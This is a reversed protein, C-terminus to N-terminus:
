KALKSKKIENFVDVAIAEVQKNTMASFVGQWASSSTNATRTGLVEGTKLNRFTLKSEIYANGGLVGIAYRTGPRLFRYDEVYVLLLTGDEGMARPVGDQMEFPVGAITAQELFNEQWEQKFATWDRSDVSSKTGSVNLVLKSSASPPPAMAVDSSPRKVTAACGALLVFSCLVLASRLRM